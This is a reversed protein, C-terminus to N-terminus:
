AAVHNVRLAVTRSPRREDRLSSEEFLACVDLTPCDCRTATTLWDCM